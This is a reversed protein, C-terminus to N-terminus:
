LLFDAIAKSVEPFNNLVLIHNAEPLVILKGGSIKQTAVVSHQYPVMSDKAGHIILAPVRIEGLRSERNFGYLHKLSYLYVRLGTNSVDAFIRKFNWDGTNKYRAYDLHKGVKKQFPFLGLIGIFWGIFPFLIRVYGIRKTNFDPALFVVSSIKEPYALLFEFAVSAGFSHGILTCKDILLFDTLSKLDKAFGRIEYDAYLKSKLSKGHGRLDFTLINYEKEFREEYKKWASSSGSLGHVFVLTQRGTEFKNTRYYLGGETFFAETM